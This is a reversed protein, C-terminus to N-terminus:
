TPTRLATTVLRELLNVRQRALARVHGAPFTGLPRAPGAPGRHDHPDERHGARHEGTGDLGAGHRGSLGNM